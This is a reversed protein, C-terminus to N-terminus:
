GNRAREGAEAKLREAMVRLEAMVSKSLERGGESPYFWIDWVGRKRKTLRGHDCLWQFMTQGDRPTLAFMKVFLKIWAAPRVEAEV